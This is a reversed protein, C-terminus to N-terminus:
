SSEPSCGQIEPLHTDSRGFMITQIKSTFLDEALRISEKILSARLGLEVDIIPPNYILFHKEGKPSGDTNVLSVPSEILTEALERPNGITASTLIFRINAGYFSAIRKLRRIVNAVHSGFVGRYVHIEDIVVYILGKFFSSWRAHQPLIGTHLMDPNTIVLRSHNRIATRSNLSTDGDYTAPGINMTTNNASLYFLAASLIKKLSSLQDQALAKTPFIYLGRAEHNSLLDNLVPLNYCISKGSATGTV